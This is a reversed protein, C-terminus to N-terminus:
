QEIREYYFAISKESERFRKFNVLFIELIKNQCVVSTSVDKWIDDLALDGTQSRIFDM